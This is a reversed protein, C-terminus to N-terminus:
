LERDDHLNQILCRQYAREQLMQALSRRSGFNDDGITSASITGSLESGVQTISKHLGLAATGVLHLRACAGRAALDKPENVGIGFQRQLTQILDRADHM